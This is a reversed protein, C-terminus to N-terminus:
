RYFIILTLAFAVEETNDTSGDNIIVCEWNDYTQHIVSEVADSLYEGQNYCPIIVSVKKSV